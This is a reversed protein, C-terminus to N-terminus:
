TRKGLPSINGKSFRHFMTWIIGGFNALVGLMFVIDSEVMPLDAMRAFLVLIGSLSLIAASYTQSYTKFEM